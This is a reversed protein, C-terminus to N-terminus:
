YHKEVYRGWYRRNQDYLIQVLGNQYDIDISFNQLVWFGLLGSIEIGTDHSKRSIDFSIPYTDGYNNRAFQYEANRLPRSVPLLRGDPGYVTPHDTSPGGERHVTKVISSSTGYLNISLDEKAALETAAIAPALVTSFTGTDLLFLFPGKKNILTPLLINNGSIYIPSWDKEEPAIYQNSLDPPETAPRAPYPDLRMSQAVFDIHIIHDRFFNTGILGNHDALAADSVVTVPCDRYEINGIRVRDAVGVYTAAPDAPLTTLPHIGAHEADKKGIVIGSVSPDLELLPNDSNNLRVKTGWSRPYKASFMIPDLEITATAFPQSAACSKHRDLIALQAALDDVAAVPLLPNSALFARLVPVRQTDSLTALFAVTIEPDSPALSHAISFKRAAAAHHSLLDNIKGIGLQARASCPDLALAKSYTAGAEVIQGSRLLTDGVLSQAEASKPMAAAARTATAMAKTLNNRDLESKVVAAYNAPTASADLQATYLVEARAADGAAFARDAETPSV